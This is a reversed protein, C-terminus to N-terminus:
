SYILSACYSINFEYTRCPILTTNTSSFVVFSIEYNYYVEHSVIDNSLRAIISSAVLILPESALWDHAEKTAENGIGLWSLTALCPITSSRIGNKVYQEMTPVNNGHYWKAEQFYANILKKM